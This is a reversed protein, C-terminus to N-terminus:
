VLYFQPYPATFNNGGQFGSAPSTATSPLVNGTTTNSINGNNYPGASYEGYGMIIQTTDQGTTALCYVGPQLTIPASAMPFEMWGGTQAGWVFAGTSCELTLTVGSGSGFTPPTGGYIGICYTHGTLGYNSTSIYAGINSFTVPWLLEFWAFNINGPGAWYATNTTNTNGSSNTVMYESLPTLASGTFAVTFATGINTVSIDTGGTFTLAGSETNISSVGGGGGSGMGRETFYNTGDTYLAIGENQALTLSSSSGDIDLGNPSVTVTGSSTNEVLVWWVSSSPPSLLLYTATASFTVLKGSDSAQASYNGSESIVGGGGSGGSSSITQDPWSGTITIGSGAILSPTATGTGGRSIALTSRWGLTLIQASIVGTVNTDDAVANVTTVPEDAAVMLRFTPKAPGGTTPGAYITNAPEFSTLGSIAANANAAGQVGTNSNTILGNLQTQIDNAWKNLAAVQGPNNFSTIKLPVPM